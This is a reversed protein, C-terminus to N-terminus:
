RNRESRVFLFTGIAMFLVFSGGLIAMNALPTTLVVSEYEPQGLYFIGRTLDVAYRLPSLRSLIELYFPLVKIPAFIGATFFQPLLLFPFIQDAARRSSAMSLLMVGFAGGYLATVFGVLLLGGVQALGLPVGIVFAFIIIAIGQPLAVMTEGLIKGFIISYRSIPSVFIEQSFDNERDEMLSIVGLATSQYVTQALVGTFTFVLINYGAVNGLNAQMSNGLIGIFIMPFVFSSVIRAPDRLLKLFDRYAIAFIANAERWGASLGRPTVAPEKVTLSTEM